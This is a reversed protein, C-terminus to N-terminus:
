LFQAAVLHKPQEHQHHQAGTRRLIGNALPRGGKRLRPQPDGFGYTVQCTGHSKRRQHTGCPQNVALPTVLQMQLLAHQAAAQQTHCRIQCDRQNRIWPQRQHAAGHAAKRHTNQPRAGKAFASGGNGLAARHHKGQKSQATVQPAAGSGGQRTHNGPHTVAIHASPNQRPDDKGQQQHQAQHKPLLPFGCRSIRLRIRVAGM